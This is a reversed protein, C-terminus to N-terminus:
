TAQLECGELRRIQKAYKPMVRGLYRLEQQTYINKRSLAYCEVADFANFGYNKAVLKLGRILTAVDENVISGGM